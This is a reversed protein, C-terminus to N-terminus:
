SVNYILLACQDPKQSMIKEELEKKEKEDVEMLFNEWQLCLIYIRKVMM